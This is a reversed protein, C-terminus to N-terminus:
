ILTSWKGSKWFTGRREGELQFYGWGEGRWNLTALTPELFTKQDALLDSFDFGISFTPPLPLFLMISHFVLKELSKHLLSDSFWFLFLFPTKSNNSKDSTYLRFEYNTTIVPFGFFLLGKQSLHKTMWVKKWYHFFTQIIFCRSCFLEMLM